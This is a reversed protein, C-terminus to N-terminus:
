HMAGLAVAADRCARECARCAEACVRCHEHRSAHDDCEQACLRCAEPAFGPETFDVVVDAGGQALAAELGLGLSPAAAAHVTLETDAEIAEALLVGVKGTAGSLIVNLM